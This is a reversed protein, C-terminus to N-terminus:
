LGLSLQSSVEDLSRLLLEDLRTLAHKEGPFRYDGILNLHELLIPYIHSLQDDHIEYQAQRLREVAEGMCDTNWVIIATALLHLCHAQNAQDEVSRPKLIGGQGISLARDL